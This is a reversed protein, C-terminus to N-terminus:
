NANIIHHYITAKNNFVSLFFFRFLTILTILLILPYNLKLIAVNCSYRGEYNKKCRYKKIM